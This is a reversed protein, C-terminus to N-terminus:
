GRKAVDAVTGGAMAVLAEFGTEYVANPTGGAAWLTPYQKLDEDVFVVSPTEHGVPPVGGIAFGTRERVFEADAREVKEGLLARIKKEDVRNIGSTIVLVARGTDAARFIISKAIQAVDCGVAMAADAATKTSEDFEVVKFRPGLVQQVRLAAPQTAARV